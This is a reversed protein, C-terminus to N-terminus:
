SRRHPDSLLKTRTNGGGPELSPLLKRLLRTMREIETESLGTTILEGDSRLVDAMARQALARGKATLRVPKSRRDSVGASRTILGRAELSRLVKTLGGSSILVADYLSTPQLEHPSPTGRLAALVEFETFTLGHASVQRTANDLILTSFRFIRVMLHSIPTVAQPWNEARVRLIDDATLRPGATMPKGGQACQM